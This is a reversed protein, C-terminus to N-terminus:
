LGLITITSALLFVHIKFKVPKITEITV